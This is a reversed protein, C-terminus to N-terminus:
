AQQVTPAQFAPWPVQTTQKAFGTPAQNRLRDTAELATILCHSKEDTSLSEPCGQAPPATTAPASLALLPFLAALLALSVNV